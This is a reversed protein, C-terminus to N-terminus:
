FRKKEKLEINEERLKKKKVEKNTRYPSGVSKKLVLSM